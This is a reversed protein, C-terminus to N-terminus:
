PRRGRGTTFPDSVPGVYVWRGKERRFASDEAVVGDGHHARFAVTGDSDFLGGGTRGLVELGTWRDGPDVQVRAPRTDPHWTDHLYGADAVVFASYRSRMLQEATAATAEGRHLRGCCADYTSPLGCPCPAPV